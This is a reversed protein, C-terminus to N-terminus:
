MHICNSTRLNHLPEKGTKQRFEDMARRFGNLSDNYINLMNENFSQGGLFRSMDRIKLQGTESVGFNHSFMDRLFIEHDECLVTALGHFKKINELNLLPHDQDADTCYSEIKDHLREMADDYEDELLFDSAMATINNYFYAMEKEVHESSLRPLDALNERIICVTEGLRITVFEPVIDVEADQACTMVSVERLGQGGVDWSFLAKCVRNEGIDFVIGDSGVGLFSADPFVKLISTVAEHAEKSKDDHMDETIKKMDLM